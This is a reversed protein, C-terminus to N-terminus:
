EDASAPRCRLRARLAYPARSHATRDRSRRRQDQPNCRGHVGFTQSGGDDLRAGNTALRTCARHDAVIEPKRPAHAAAVEREAGPFLRKKETRLEDESAPRDAQGRVAILMLNFSESPPTTRARATM